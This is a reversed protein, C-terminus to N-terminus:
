RRQRYFRSSVKRDELLTRPERRAHKQTNVRFCQAAFDREVFLFDRDVFVFFVWDDKLAPDALDVLVVGNCCEALVALVTRCSTGVFQALFNTKAAVSSKATAQGTPAPCFC